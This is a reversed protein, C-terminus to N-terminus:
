RGRLIDALTGPEAGTLKRIDDSVAELDGAAISTYTSVWAEVQWDPAGYGARSAYAEEVTENHFRTERGTIRTITEAAEDLTFAEPGTLDYTEGEHGEGALVVAAAEAIDARRV